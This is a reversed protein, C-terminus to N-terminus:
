IRIHSNLHASPKLRVRRGKVLRPTRGLVFRLQHYMIYNSHELVNKLLAPIIWPVPRSTTQSAVMVFYPTMAKDHPIKLPKGTTKIQLAIPTGIAAANNGKPRISMEDPYAATFFRDPGMKGM